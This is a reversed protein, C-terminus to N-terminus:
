SSFLELQKKGLAHSVLRKLGAPMPLSLLEEEKKLLLDKRRNPLTGIEWLHVKVQWHTFKLTEEIKLDRSDGKKIGLESILDSLAELSTQGEGAIKWPIEYFGAWLGQSPRVRLLFGTEPTGILLAAGERRCITTKRSSVPRQQQTGVKFATCLQTVPCESCRCSTGPLCVTAGLEMFAQTLVRPEGLQLVARVHNEILTSGPKRAPDVDLNLLRSFVRRVNGDVAPVPLNFAISSVAGVTYPGIGPLKKLFEPDPPLTELGAAKLFKATKQLNRARTYYGLGQWLEIVEKEDADALTRFDPLKELWRKYFFKVREVQTQQLMAESVLISYPDKNKRWPLDRSCTKYWQTLCGALESHFMEDTLSCSNKVSM